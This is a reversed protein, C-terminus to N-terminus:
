RPPRYRYFRHLPLLHSWNLAAIGTISSARQKYGKPNQRQQRDHPGCEHGHHAHVAPHVGTVDIVHLTFQKGASQQLINSPDQGIVQVPGHLNDAVTLAPGLYGVAILVTLGAGGVDGAPKDVLHHSHVGAVGYAVGLMLVDVSEDPAGLCTVSQSKADRGAVVEPHGHSKIGAAHDVDIGGGHRHGPLMVFLGPREVATSVFDTADDCREGPSAVGVDRHHGM